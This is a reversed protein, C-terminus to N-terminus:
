WGHTPYWGDPDRESISIRIENEKWHRICLKCARKGRWNHTDSFVKTDDPLDEIFERLDKVTRIDKM